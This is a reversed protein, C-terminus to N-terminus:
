YTTVVNRYYGVRAKSTVTKSTEDVGNTVAAALVFPAVLLLAEPYLINFSHRAGFLHFTVM